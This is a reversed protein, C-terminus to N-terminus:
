YGILKISTDQMKQSTEADEAINLRWEAATDAANEQKTQNMFATILRLWYHNPFFDM